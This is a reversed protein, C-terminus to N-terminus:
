AEQGQRYRRVLYVLLTSGLVAGMLGAGSEGDTLARIVIGALLSGGIGVGVTQWFSMPDKGPLALRALGGIVAGSIITGLIFGIM